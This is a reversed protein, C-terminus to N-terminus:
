QPHVSATERPHREPLGDNRSHEPIPVGIVIVGVRKEIGLVM